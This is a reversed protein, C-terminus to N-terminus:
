IHHAGNKQVTFIIPKVFMAIFFSTPQMTIKVVPQHNQVSEGTKVLEFQYTREHDLSVFQFKVTKGQMLDEWHDMMFPYLTDDIVTDPQLIRGRGKPPNLNHAYSIFIRQRAPNEPDPEIRIAGSVGAQFDLMEDSVLRNSEYLVKEVVALTGNTGLFQRQIHVIAGTRRATRRFTYLVKQRHSGIAYLTGTLLEPKAYDYVPSAMPSAPVAALASTIVSLGLALLGVPRAVPTIGAFYRRM